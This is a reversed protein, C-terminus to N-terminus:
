LPAGSPVAKLMKAFLPQGAEIEQESRQHLTASRLTRSACTTTKAGARLRQAHWNWCEDLFKGNFSEVFANEIPKGPRIYERSV